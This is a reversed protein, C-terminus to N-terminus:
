PNSVGKLSVSDYERGLASLCRQTQVRLTAEKTGVREAMEKYSLGGDYRLALLERCRESIATLARRLMGTEQAAALRAEPDPTSAPIVVYGAEGGTDHPDVRVTQTGRGRKLATQSRLRSIRVRRAIELIYAELPRNEDYNRLAAFLSLFIDQVTDEVEEPADFGLKRVVATVMGLYRRYFEDWAVREGRNCRKVLEAPSGSAQDQTAM